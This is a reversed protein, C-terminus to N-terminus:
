ERGLFFYLLVGLVPMFVILLAWIVTSATGRHEDGLLDILAIIDAVIIITGLFGWTPRSMREILNPGGCGALVLSLPALLILAPRLLVSRTNAAM